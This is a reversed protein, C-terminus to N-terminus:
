SDSRVLNVQLPADQDFHIDRQPFAIVIGTENFAQDISKRLDSKIRHLDMLHEMRIWFYIQFQLANDGFDSFLITPLPTILTMPHERAIQFCIEEVQKVPSGYAVGLDVRLRIIKDSLTWNTVNKELFASNPLVIHINDPTKVRTSRMGIYDIEGVTGEIDVFDGVKIPREILLILGSIFNNVINQSGFGLGLALAGGFFAFLTLPVQLVRMATLSFIVAMVYFSLKQWSDRAGISVDPKKSIWAGLLRSLIRALAIGLIFLGIVMIVTGLSLSHGQINFVEFKWFQLLRKVVDETKKQLPIHAQAEAVEKKLRQELSAVNQLMGIFSQYFALHEQYLAIERDVWRRDALALNDQKSRDSLAQLDTQVSQKRLEAFQMDEQAKLKLSRSEEAWSELELRNYTAKDIAFIRQWALRLDKMYQLQKKLIDKQELSVESLAELYVLREALGPREDDSEDLSEMLETHQKDSRNIKALTQQLARQIDFEQGRILVLKDQLSVEESPSLQASEQARVMADTSLALWVSLVVVLSYLLRKM